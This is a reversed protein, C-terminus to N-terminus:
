STRFRERIYGATRLIAFDHLLIGVLRVEGEAERTYVDRIIEVGPWIAAVTNAESGKIVLAEQRNNAYAGINGSVRLRDGIIDTLRGADAIALGAMHPFVGDAGTGVLMRVDAERMAYRGDVGGSIAAMYEAATTAGTPPTPNASHGTTLLGSASRNLIQDDMKDRLGARINESLGADIGGFTAADELTYAFQVQARKPTLERVALVADTEGHAASRAPTGVNGLAGTTIVPWSRTGVPVDEFRTNVFAAVSDGFVQGAISAASGPTAPSTGFSAAVRHEPMLMRLPVSNGDVGYHEQLEREPGSNVSRGSAVHGIIRAVSASNIISRLETSEADFVTSGTERAEAEVAARYEGEKAKLEALLKSRSADDIKPDNAQERIESMKMTVRQSDLM